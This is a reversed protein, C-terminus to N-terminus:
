SQGAGAGPGSPDAPDHLAALCLRLGPLHRHYSFSLSPGGIVPLALMADLLWTLHLEAALWSIIGEKALILKWAYIKVLYSSWLPLMVLIISYRRGNAARMARPSIPSPFPLVVSALTVATAMTLAASSSTSIPSVSCNACLHRPYIRLPHLGSFEDISFFSHLLLALLSGLYVVGLWLLPPGLLLLLLLHPHRFLVDSGHRFFGQRSEAVVINM